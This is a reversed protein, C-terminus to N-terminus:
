RMQTYEVTAEMIVRITAWITILILTLNLNMQHSPIKIYLIIFMLIYGIILTIAYYRWISIVKREIADQKIIELYWYDWVFGRLAYVSIMLSFFISNKLGYFMMLFFMPVGFIELISIGYTYPYKSSAYHAGYWDDAILVYAFSILLISSINNQEFADSWFTITAGVLAGYIIDTVTVFYPATEKEIAVSPTVPMKNKTM